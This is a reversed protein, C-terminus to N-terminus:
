RSPSYLPNMASEEFVESVSDMFVVYAMYPLTVPTNNSPNVLPKISSQFQLRFTGGAPGAADDNIGIVRYFDAVPQLAGAPMGSVAPLFPHSVLMVWGGKRLPPRGNAGMNVDVFSTPHHPDPNAVVPNPAVIENPPNDPSRNEYVVVTLKAQSRNSNDDRQILWSCNYRGARQVFGTSLDPGGVAGTGAGANPDPSIKFTMDDLMGFLRLASRTMNPQVIGPAQVPRGYVSEPVAPNTPPLVFNVAAISRRPVALTPVGGVWWQDPRGNRANFGIPDIYLAYSAGNFSSPVVPYGSTPIPQGTGQRAGPNYTGIPPPPFWLADPNDLALLAHERGPYPPAFPPTSGPNGMVTRDDPEVSDRQPDLWVDKWWMRALSDTSNAVGGTRWDKAAQAMYSVGLPILSLLALLGLTLIFVAVLAETLSVGTRRYQRIM